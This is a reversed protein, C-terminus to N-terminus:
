SQVTVGREYVRKNHRSARVALYFKFMDSEYHEFLIGDKVSTRVTQSKQHAQHELEQSTTPLFICHCFALWSPNPSIYKEVLWQWVLLWFNSIWTDNEMLNTLYFSFFFFVVSSTSLLDSIPCIYRGVRIGARRGPGYGPVMSQFLQLFQWWSRTIKELRVDDPYIVRDLVWSPTNKFLVVIPVFHGFWNPWWPSPFSTVIMSNPILIFVETEGWFFCFFVDSLQSPPRKLSNSSWVFRRDLMSVGWCQGEEEEHGRTRSLWM